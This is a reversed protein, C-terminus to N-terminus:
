IIHERDKGHSLVSLKRRADAMQPRQRRQMSVPFLMPTSVNPEVLNNFGVFSNEYKCFGIDNGVDQLYNGLKFEDGRPSCAM